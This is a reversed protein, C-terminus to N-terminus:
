PMVVTAVVMLLGFLLPTMSLTWRVMPSINLVIVKEPDLQNVSVGGAKSAVAHYSVDCVVQIYFM